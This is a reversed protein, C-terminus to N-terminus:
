LEIVKERMFKTQDTEKLEKKNCTGVTEKPNLGSIVYTWPMTIKVKRIM